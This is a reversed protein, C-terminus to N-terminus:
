PTVFYGQYDTPSTGQLVFVSTYFYHNPLFSVKIAGLITLPKVKTLDKSIAAVNTSSNAMEMAKVLVPIFQYYNAVLGTIETAPIMKLLQSRLAKMQSNVAVSPDFATGSVVGVVRGKAVSLVAQSSGWAVVPVSQPLGANALSTIADESAADSDGSWVVGPHYAVIEAAVSSLDTTQAPYLFAKFRLGAAPLEKSLEPMLTQMVPDNPAVIAVSKASPAAHQMAKIMASMSNGVTNLSNFYYPAQSSGPIEGTGSAPTINLINNQAAYPVVTSAASAIPGLIIKIGDDRVLQNADALSVQPDSRDDVITATLKEHKGDIIVGGAQNVAQMAIKLGAIAPAGVYGYTGSQSQILGLDVTGSFGGSSSNANSGGGSSGCATAFFGLGILLCTAVCSRRSLQM